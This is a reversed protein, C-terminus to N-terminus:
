APGHGPATECRDRGDRKAGYLARDARLMLGDADESALLAAIGASVTLTLGIDGRENLPRRTAGAIRDFLVRAQLVDTGPLVLAFEEGGIRCV